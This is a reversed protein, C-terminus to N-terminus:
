CPHGPPSLCSSCSWGPAQQSSSDHCLCMAPARGDSTKEGWSSFSNTVRCREASPLTAPALCHHCSITVPFRRSRWLVFSSGETACQWKWAVATLCGQCRVPAAARVGLSPAWNGVVWPGAQLGRWVAILRPMGRSCIWGSAQQMRGWSPMLQCLHLRGGAKWVLCLLKCPFQTWSGM